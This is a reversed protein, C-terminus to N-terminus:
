KKIKEHPCYGFRGKAHNCNLCLVEYLDPNYEKIAKKYAGYSTEKRKKGVQGLKHELTLFEVIIEGCCICVSGYMEFFASKVINYREIAYDPNRDRWCKHQQAVKEPHEEKFKRRYERLEARHTKNYERNQALVKEKNEQYYKKRYEKMDFPM